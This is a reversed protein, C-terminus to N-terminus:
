EEGPPLERHELHSWLPSNSPPIIQLGVGTGPPRGRVVNECVIAHAGKVVVTGHVEMRYMVPRGRLVNWAMKLKWHM